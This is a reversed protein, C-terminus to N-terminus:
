PRINFAILRSNELVCSFKSSLYDRLGTYYDLWWFAPWGFVIFSAGGKRLRELEQIATKDDPPPGWYQGDREIFPIARHDPLIDCGWQGDEVLIFSDAAPILATLEKTVLRLQKILRNRKQREERSKKVTTIDEHIYTGNSLAKYGLISSIKDTSFPMMNGKTYNPINPWFEKLLDQVALNSQRDIEKDFLNFIEFNFEWNTRLACDFGEILNEISTSMGLYKSYMCRFGPAGLRLSIAKTDGKGTAEALHTEFKRKLIGYLTNEKQSTPCYNTELIPFQEIKAGKGIGGSFGYVAVSSSYIFKPVKAERAAEFVNIAGEYNIRRYDEDSFGPLGPHALAALHIVAYGGQFRKILNSRKDLIDDKTPKILKAKILIEELQYLAYNLWFSFELIGKSNSTAFYKGRLLNVLWGQYKDFIEVEYGKKRLGRRLIQGVHGSGGTIMIKKNM